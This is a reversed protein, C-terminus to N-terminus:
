VCDAPSSDEASKRLNDANRLFGALKTRKIASGKFVKSFESQTMKKAEEANMTLLTHSPSFEGIETPPVFNNLPSNMPCVNQCIDCGFLTLRGAPTSMAEAGIADWDGRHEITLYSLCVRADVSSDEKLAGAPCARRCKGCHICSQINNKSICDAGPMLTVSDEPLEATSLIEALFIRTGYGRVSILGNDARRGIGCKEAWYREFVPASDICIRYEGEFLRKLREVAEALRKRIADHYDRGYAYSAIAPLSIERWQRPSYPFALSIVTKSGPLLLEPNHRIQLHNAMYDMGAAFGADLWSRYAEMIERPIEGIRTIGYACAGTSTDLLISRIM